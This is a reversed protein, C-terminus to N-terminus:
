FGLLGCDSTLLVGSQMDEPAEATVHICEGRVLQCWADPGWLAHLSLRPGGEPPCPKRVRWERERLPGKQPGGRPDEHDGVLGPTRAQGVM